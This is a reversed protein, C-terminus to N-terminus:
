CNEKSNFNIALEFFTKAIFVTRRPCNTLYYMKLPILPLQYFNFLVVCKVHNFNHDLLTDIQLAIIKIQM